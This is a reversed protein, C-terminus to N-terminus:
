LPQRTFGPTVGGDIGSGPGTKTLEAISGYMVLSPTAYAKKTDQAETTGVM